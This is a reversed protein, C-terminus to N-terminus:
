AELYFYRKVQLYFPRISSLDRVSFSTFTSEYEQIVYNLQKNKIM